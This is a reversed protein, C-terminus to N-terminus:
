PYQFMSITYFNHYRFMVRRFHIKDLIDVPNFLQKLPSNDNKFINDADKMNGLLAAPVKQNVGSFRAIVDFLTLYKQLIGNKIVADPRAAM